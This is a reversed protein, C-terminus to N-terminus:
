APLCIHRRSYGIPLLCVQPTRVGPTNGEGKLVVAQIGRYLGRKGGRLRNSCLPQNAGQRRPHACSGPRSLSLVTSQVYPNPRPWALTATDDGAPELQALRGRAAQETNEGRQSEVRAGRRYPLAKQVRLEGERGSITLWFGSLFAWALM